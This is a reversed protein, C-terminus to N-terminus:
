LFYSMGLSFVWRDGAIERGFRYGLSLQVNEPIANLPSGALLAVGVNGGFRADQDPYWAGAYDIFGALGLGLVRFIDDWAFWRHEVIVRVSRTGTFSHADWLRPPGPFGLDFEGGPAPDKRAGGYLSVFLAHKRAPKVVGTLQLSVRGSDLGASNYVANASLVGKLIASGLRGGARLQVVPGIGGAAYGWAAPALQLGIHVVESLDQDERAFGNVFRVVQFDARRYELFGGIQGYASDPVVSVTDDRRAYTERRYEATAGIRLYSSPGAIPSFAGVARHVLARRDWFMTDRSVANNTRYRRVQGNFAQGSYEFATRDSLSYFPKGVRWNGRKQDSLGQYLGGLFLSTGFARSISTGVEIGDRDVFKQYALTFPVGTGLLNFETVGITGTARGASTVALRVRPRTSWADVTRVRLALEGNATRTTDVSVERFLRRRRLNRETEAALTSDYAQGAELLLEREIVYPRTVAHLANVARYLFSGRAEAATFVDYRELVVTDIVAAAEVPSPAQPDQGVASRPVALFAALLLGVAPRSGVALRARSSPAGTFRGSM